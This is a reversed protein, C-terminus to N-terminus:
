RAPSTPTRGTSVAPAAKDAREQCISFNRDSDPASSTDRRLRRILSASQARGPARRSRIRHRSGYEKALKEIYEEEERALRKEDERKRRSATRHAARHRSRVAKAYERAQRKNQVVSSTTTQRTVGYVEIDAKSLQSTPRPDQARPRQATARTPAPRRQACARSAPAAHEARSARGARTTM